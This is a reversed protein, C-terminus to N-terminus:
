REIREHYVVLKKAGLEHGRGQLTLAVCGAFAFLALTALMWGLAQFPQHAANGRWVGFVVAAVFGTYAFGATVLVIWNWLAGVIVLARSGTPFRFLYRAPRVGAKFAGERHLGCLLSFDAPDDGGGMGHTHRWADRPGCRRGCVACRYGHRHAVTELVAAPVDDTRARRTWM